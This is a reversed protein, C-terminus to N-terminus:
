SIWVMNNMGNHLAQRITDSFDPKFINESAPIVVAVIDAQM